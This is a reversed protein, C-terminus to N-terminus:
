PSYPDKDEMKRIQRRTAPRGLDMGFDEVPGDAPKAKTGSEVPKAQAASEAPEAAIEPAHDGRRARAPPESRKLTVDLHFDSDVTFSKKFPLYGPATAQVMHPTQDKVLDLSIVNGQAATGDLVLSAEAPQVTIRIHHKEAPPPPVPAPVAVRASTPEQGMDAPNKPTATALPQSEHERPPVTEPSKQARLALVGVAAGAGIITAVLVFVVGRRRKPRAAPDVGGSRMGIGQGSIVPPPTQPMSSLEDWALKANKLKVTIPSEPDIPALQAVARRQSLLPNAVRLTIEDSRRGDSGGQASALGDSPSGDNRASSPLGADQRPVKPDDKTEM